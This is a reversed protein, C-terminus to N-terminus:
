HLGGFSCIQRNTFCVINFIFFSNRFKRLVEYVSRYYKIQCIGGLISANNEFALECRNNEFFFFFFTLMSLNM